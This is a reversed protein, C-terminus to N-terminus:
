RRRGVKRMTSGIVGGAEEQVYADFEREGVVLRMSDPFGVVAVAAGQIDDLSSPRGIIPSRPGDLPPFAPDDGGFGGMFQDYLAEGSHKLGTWGSGSFPGRKAPSQPFFGGIFDMVGGIADGILNITGLIGDIFGQILAKGADVLWTGVNKFIDGIFKPIGEFLIKLGGDILGGIASVFGEFARQLGKFAKDWDGTFVGVVFDILGALVEILGSIVPMLASIILSALELVPGLIGMFLDIIPPLIEGILRLLPDILQLLPGILGLIATIVPMIVPVIQAFVGIIMHIIPALAELVKGLILGVSTALQAVVPVLKLIVPIVAALASKLVSTVVTAVHNLIPIIVALATGLVGAIVSAIQAFAGSLQPLVGSIAGIIIGLPSLSTWLALLQPVVSGIIPAIEQFVPLFASALVDILPQIFGVASQFAGGLGGSTLWGVVGELAPILTANLFSVVQTAIPLFLTGLQTVLNSWGAALIRQQNALGGSTRAFDGQATSTQALIEAQAALVRQQQTLAGTGDFIGLEMARAKLTADDLLVGFQRLPESEGRLGAGIANIATETDTNFFSALDTGLSVLDTSFGTLDGGALGAAKGYIGFTQAARLVSIETEGFAQAGQKAFSQLAGAQDGFVEAIATGAEQLDSAQSISDRIIGGIGVAAFAAALPAALKGVAGLVGSRVGKGADEGAVTGAPGMSKKFGKDVEKGFGSFDPVVEAWATYFSDAM